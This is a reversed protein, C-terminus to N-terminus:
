SAPLVRYAPRLAPRSADSNLPHHPESHRRRPLMQLVTATQGPALRQLSVIRGDPFELADHHVRPVHVHVQRFSALSAATRRAFFGLFGGMRVTKHSLVQASDGYKVKILDLVERHSSGQETFYQM